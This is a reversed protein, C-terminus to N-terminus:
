INCTKKCLKNIDSYLNNFAKGKKKKIKSGAVAKNTSSIDYCEMETFMKVKSQHNMLKRLGRNNRLLHVLYKKM